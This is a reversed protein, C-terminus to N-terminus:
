HADAVGFSQPAAHTSGIVSLALQPAQPAVQVEDCCQTVPLQAVQGLEVGVCHAPSHTSVCVEAVSQPVHPFTHSALEAHTAPVQLALHALPRSHLVLQVSRLEQTSHQPTASGVPNAANSCAKTAPHAHRGVAAHALAQLVFGTQVLGPLGRVAPAHLSQRFVCYACGVAAQTVANWAAQEVSAAQTRYRSTSEALQGHCEGAEPWM